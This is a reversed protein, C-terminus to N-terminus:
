GVHLEVPAHDSLLRGGVRRREEPWVVPPTSPLGRVLIQDIGPAPASFGWRSLADYTEGEGPRVNVDGCIIVPEDDRALEEIQTATRLFQRDALATTTHLNALLGVGPLRLTQCVRREGEGRRSITFSHRDDVRLDRSVLVANAQGTFVSRFLGHNRRTIVKGLQASVLRARAAVAGAATMGSWAELFLLAWIPVEQFCVVDPGDATALRVMEELRAHREPPFANGHFLNWTRVLLPV